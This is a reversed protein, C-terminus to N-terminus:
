LAPPRSDRQDGVQREAEREEASRAPAGFSASRRDQQYDAQRHHDQRRDGAKRCGSPARPALPLVKRILGRGLDGAVRLAQRKCKALQFPRYGPLQVVYDRSLEM